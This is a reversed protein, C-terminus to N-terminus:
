SLNDHNTGIMFDIKKFIQYGIRYGGIKSSVKIRIMFLFQHRLKKFEGLCKLMKGKSRNYRNKVIYLIWLNQM